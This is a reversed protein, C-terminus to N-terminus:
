TKEGMAAIFACLLALAPTPAEAHEERRIEVDEGMYDSGIEIIPSTLDAGCVDPYIGILISWDPLKQRVLAVAASLDATYHPCDKSAERVIQYSDKTPHAYTPSNETRLRCREESEFAARWRKPGWMWWGGGEDSWRAWVEEGDMESLGTAYYSWPQSEGFHEAILADIERDGGTAARLKELLTPSM